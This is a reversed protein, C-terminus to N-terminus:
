PQDLLNSHKPSLGLASPLNEFATSDRLRKGRSAGSREQFNYRSLCRSFENHCLALYYHHWHEKSCRFNPSRWLPSLSDTRRNNERSKRYFDARLNIEIRVWHTWRLLPCSLPCCSEVTEDGLLDQAGSVFPHSRRLIEVSSHRRSIFAVTKSIISLARSPKYFM